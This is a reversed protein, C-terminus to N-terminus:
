TECESLWYLSELDRGNLKKLNGRWSWRRCRLCKFALWTFCCWQICQWWGRRYVIRTFEFLNDDILTCRHIARFHTFALRLHSAVQLSAFICEVPMLTFLCASYRYILIRRVWWRASWPVECFNVWIIWRATAFYAIGLQLRWLSCSCILGFLLFRDIVFNFARAHSQRQYLSWEILYAIQRSKTGGM